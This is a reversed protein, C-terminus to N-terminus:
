RRIVGAVIEQGRANAVSITYDGPKLLRPDVKLVLKDAIIDNVTVLGTWVVHDSIDVVSVSAPPDDGPLLIVPLVVTIPRDPPILSPTATPVPTGRATSRPEVLIAAAPPNKTVVFPAPPSVPEHTRLLIAAIIIAAAAVPVTVRWSSFLKQWLSIENKASKDELEQGREIVRNRLDPSRILTRQIEKRRAPDLRGALYDDIEQSTPPSVGADDYEASKELAQPLLRELWSLDHDSDPPRRKM